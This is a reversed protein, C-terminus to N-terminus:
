FNQLFYNYFHSLFLNQLEFVIQNYTGNPTFILEIPVVFQALGQEITYTSIEQINDETANTNKLYVKIIQPTSLEKHVEFNLYYSKNSELVNSGSLVIAKDTFTIAESIDAQTTIDVFSYNLPIVYNEFNNRRFQGLNFAM